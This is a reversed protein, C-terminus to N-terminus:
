SYYFQRIVTDGLSAIENYTAEADDFDDTEVCRYFTYGLNTMRQVEPPCVDYHTGDNWMVSPAIGNNLGHAGPIIPDFDANRQELPPIQHGRIRFQEGVSCTMWSQALHLDHETFQGRERAERIRIKWSKM